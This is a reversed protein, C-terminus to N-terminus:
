TSPIPCRFPKPRASTAPLWASVRFLDFGEFAFVFAHARAACADRDWEDAFLVLIRSRKMPRQHWTPGPMPEPPATM